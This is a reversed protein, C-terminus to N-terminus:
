AYWRSDDRVAWAARLDDGGIYDLLADDDEDHDRELDWSPDRALFALLDARQAAREAALTRLETALRMGQSDLPRRELHDAARTLADTLERDTTM